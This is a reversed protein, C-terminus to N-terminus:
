VILRRLACHSFLGDEDALALFRLRVSGADLDALDGLRKCDRNLLMSVIGFAYGLPLFDAVRLLNRTVSAAPTVPGGTSGCGCSPGADARAHPRCHQVIAIRHHATDAVFVIGSIFIMSLVTGARLLGAPLHRMKTRPNKADVDRDVYRNFAMAMSRAAVMCVLVGLLDQWRFALSPLSFWAMVGALLAFPLAFITHSFRVLELFLRIQHLLGRPQTDASSNGAM